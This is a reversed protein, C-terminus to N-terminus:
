SRDHDARAFRSLYYSSETNINHKRCHRILSMIFQDVNCGCSDLVRLMTMELGENPTALRTSGRQGPAYEVTAQFAMGRAECLKALRLLEPAIAEDYFSENDDM